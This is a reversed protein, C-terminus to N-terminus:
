KLQRYANQIDPLEPIDWIRGNTSIVSFNWQFVFTSDIDAIDDIRPWKFCGPQGKTGEMFKAVATSKDQTELVQGIYFRDDCYVAVWVSEKDELWAMTKNRKLMQKTNRNFISCRRWAYMDHNLDGFAHESLEELMDTTTELLTHADEPAVGKFGVSLLRGGDLTLQQGVFKKKQRSTGDSHLTVNSLEKLCEAVHLKALAYAEEVILNATHFTLREGLCIYEQQSDPYSRLM